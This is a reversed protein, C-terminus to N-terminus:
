KKKLQVSSNFIACWKETMCLKFCLIQFLNALRKSSKLFIEVKADDFRLFLVVFTTRSKVSM